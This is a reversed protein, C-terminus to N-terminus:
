IVERDAAEVASAIGVATGDQSIVPGGSNGSHVSINGLLLNPKRRRKVERTPRVKLNAERQAFDNLMANIM